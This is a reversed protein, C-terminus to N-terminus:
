SSSDCKYLLVAQKGVVGIPIYMYTKSEFSTFARFESGVICHWTPGYKKEFKTKITKSIETQDEGRYVADKCVGMAWDQVCKHTLLYKKSWKLCKSIYINM